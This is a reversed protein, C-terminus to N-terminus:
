GETTNYPLVGEIVLSYGFQDNPKLKLNNATMQNIILPKQTETLNKPTESLPSKDLIKMRMFNLLYRDAPTDVKIHLITEKDPITFDYKGM